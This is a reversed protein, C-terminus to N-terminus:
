EYVVLPVKTREGDLEVEVEYKGPRLYVKGSDKPEVEEDMEADASEEKEKEAAKELHEELENPTTSLDYEVFNLDGSVARSM